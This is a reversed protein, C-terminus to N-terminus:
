WAQAGGCHPCGVSTSVDAEFVFGCQCSYLAHDQPAPERRRRRGARIESGALTAALPREAVLVAGSRAGSRGIPEPEPQEEQAAVSAPAPRAQRHRRLM